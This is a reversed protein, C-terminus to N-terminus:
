NNIKSKSKSPSKKGNSTNKGKKTSKSKNKKNKSKSRSKGRGKRKKGGDDSHNSITESSDSDDNDVPSSDGEDNDANELPLVVTKKPSLARLEELRQNMANYASPTIGMDEEDSTFNAKELFSLEEHRRKVAANFAEM